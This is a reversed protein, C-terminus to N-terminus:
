FGIPLNWKEIKSLPCIRYKLWGSSNFAICRTEKKGEKTIEQINKPINKIDYGPSDINKFEYFNELPYSKESTTEDIICIITEKLVSKQLSSFCDLVYEPRGFTPVVLGYKIRPKEDFNYLVTGYNQPLSSYIEHDIM